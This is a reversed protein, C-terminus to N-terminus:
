SDLRTIIMATEFVKGRESVFKQVINPRAGEVARWSNPYEITFGIGKAKPHGETNYSSRNYNLFERTSNNDQTAFATNGIIIYILLVSYYYYM